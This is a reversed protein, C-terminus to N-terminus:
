VVVRIMSRRWNASLDALAKQREAECLQSSVGVMNCDPFWAWGPYPPVCDLVRVVTEEM